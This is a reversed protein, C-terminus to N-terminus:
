KFKHMSLRGVGAGGISGVTQGVAMNDITKQQNEANMNKFSDKTTLGAGVGKGILSGALTTAGMGYNGTSLGYGALTGTLGGAGVYKIINKRKRQKFEDDSGNPLQKLSSNLTNAVYASDGMGIATGIGTKWIKADM